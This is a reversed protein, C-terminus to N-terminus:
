GRERKKGKKGGENSMGPQGQPRFPVGKSGGGGKEEYLLAFGSVHSCCPEGGKGGEKRKKRELISFIM